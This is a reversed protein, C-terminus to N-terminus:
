TLNGSPVWYGFSTAEVIHFSTLSKPRSRPEVGIPRPRYFYTKDSFSSDGLNIILWWTGWKGRSFLLVHSTYLWGLYRFFYRSLFRHIWPHKNGKNGWIYGSITIWQHKHVMNLVCIAMGVYQKQDSSIVPLPLALQHSCCEAGAVRAWRLDESAAASRCLPTM